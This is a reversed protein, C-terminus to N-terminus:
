NNEVLIGVRRRGWAEGDEVFLFSGLASAFSLASVAVIYCVM